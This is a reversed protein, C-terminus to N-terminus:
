LIFLEKVSGRGTGKSNISRRASIEVIEFHPAYLEYVLPASSNSLRVHVGRRKLELALDRLRRQAEHDFGHKTYSTFSSTASLPVYPPDFYVLDGKHARRAATEFDEVALTVRSLRAACDRLRGENCINPRKYDGFPVNFRNRRNVRYLGNFGTKNLYIFWAAVDADDGDDVDRARLAEFFQRDHPYSKLLEIVREVDHQLGRYARILRENTDSLFARPPMLHFFLAASGAFPEHYRRFKGPLHPAFQDVLSRKGGAWKIFPRGPAAPPPAKAQAHKPNAQAHKPNTQAHKPNAQAHKPNTQAHKPNAQAHNPNAKAKAKARAKM